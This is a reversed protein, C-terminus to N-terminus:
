HMTSWSDILSLMRLESLGKVRSVIDRLSSFPEEREKEIGKIVKEANKGKFNARAMKKTLEAVSDSNFSEIVEVKSPLQKQIEEINQEIAQMDQQRMQKIDRMFEDIRAELNEIQNGGYNEASSLSEAAQGGVTSQHLAQFQEVAKEVTKSPIVFANVMEAERPSIEKARVAAYYEFDGAVVEYAEADTQELLLPSLLGGSALISQAVKEIEDVKFKSRPVKSTISKVDVMYYRSM